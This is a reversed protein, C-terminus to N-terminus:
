FPDVFGPERIAWRNNRKELLMTIKWGRCCNDSIMGPVHVILRRGTEQCVVTLREPKVDCVEFRSDIVDQLPGHPPTGTFEEILVELKQAVPIQGAAKEAYEAQANADFTPVLGRDAMWGCLEAVMKAADPVMSVGRPIRRVLFWDLFEDADQVLDGPSPTASYEDLYARLLSLSKRHHPREKQFVSLVGQVTQTTDRRTRAM